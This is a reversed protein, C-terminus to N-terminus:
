RITFTASTAQNALPDYTADAMDAHVVARVQISYTGAPDSRLLRHMFLATGDTGTMTTRSALRSGDARLLDTRVLAAAVPRGHQDVIRVKWYVEQGRAFAAQPSRFSAETTLMEAVHMVPPLIPTPRLRQTAAVGAQGVQVHLDDFLAVSDAHTILGVRGPRWFTDDTATIVQEGQFWVAIRDGTATVQLTYWGWSRTPSRREFEIDIEIPASALEHPQGRVMKILHLRDDLASALAAYYNERDQARWILGASKDVQGGMPKLAVALTVDAAATDRLLAIPYHDPEALTAAQILVFEPSPAFNDVYTRWLPRGAALVPAHPGTASYDFEEPPVGYQYHQFDILRDVPTQTAVSLRLYIAVGLVTTALLM